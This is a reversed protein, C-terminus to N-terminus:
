RRGPGELERHMLRIRAIDRMMRLSHRIPDVRSAEDNIWVVPVEAVRLGLRRAVFLVEVDFAFGDIRRLSFCDRAAEATFLKFGCQTDRIGPFVTAQVLLNFTRGMLERYLPQRKELRSDALARSGIAVDYGEDLRAALRGYEEIPTSLDADSFLVREGKAHAVGHGVAYGKGRNQDYRLPRLGPQSAVRERAVEITADESGDDVVLLEVEFPQEAMWAGLRDLTPGLRLAEEYAPVVISLHPGSSM